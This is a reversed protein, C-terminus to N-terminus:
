ASSQARLQAKYARKAEQYRELAEPSDVDGLTPHQPAVDEWGPPKFGYRKGLIAILSRTKMDGIGPLDLLRRQLDRGDKADTWVRAADGGYESEIAACLEQVRKAMTGPYRHIAPKQRFAEELKGPDMGAISGADFAGTRRRIELPGSFAKQVTVQQDLVFGVLLALPDRALLANAEDDETFYLRDPKTATAM